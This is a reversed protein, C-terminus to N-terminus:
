IYGLDPWKKHGIRALGGDDRAQVVAIIDWSIERSTGKDGVVSGECLM